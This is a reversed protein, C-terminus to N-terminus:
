PRSLVQTSCDSIALSLRTFSAVQGPRSMAVGAVGHRKVEEVWLWLPEGGKGGDILKGFATEFKRGVTLILHIM